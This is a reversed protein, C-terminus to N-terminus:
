SLFIGCDLKTSAQKASWYMRLMICDPGYEDVREEWGLDPSNWALAFYRWREWTM